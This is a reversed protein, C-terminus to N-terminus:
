YHVMQKRRDPIHFGMAALWELTDFVKKDGIRAREYIRTV